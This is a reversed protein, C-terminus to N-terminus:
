DFRTTPSTTRIPSIVEMPVRKRAFSGAAETDISIVIVNVKQIKKKKKKKTTTTKQGFADVNGEEVGYIFTEALARRCGGRSSGVM